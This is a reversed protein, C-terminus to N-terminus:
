PHHIIETVGREEQLAFKMGRSKDDMASRVESRYIVKRTDDTLIKFTMAHGVHEAIGVFRGRAEKSDSPFAAESVRYYVPEYWQFRLLPSIDPTRGTMCEIPTRWALVPPAMHNLLFCVYLVALLWCEAPTGTRHMIRNTTRKVDQIKREVPNQHQHHPESQWDQIFLSRLIDKVKKSTESKARDSILKNMAGRSRINDELTNIFEKDSHKMGYADVVHSNTGMFLQACRCGSDIAAVDSFITDTAVPEDRRPVNVAPNPSQFTKRLLNSMPIKVFQTTADFTRKIVDIPAWGLRPQTKEYDVQGPRTQHTCSEILIEADHFLENEQHERIYANTVIHRHRYDGMDDFRPDIDEETVQTTVADYWEESGEIVEEDLVQPNWKNPGTMIVHPLDDFEKDTYPRMSIYPLGNRFSMPIIYGEVTTIRRLGGNVKARDDVENKYYEIQGSSHITKSTPMHAYQHFIAIVPGKNTKTVGGATVIPINTVQHNDIGEVDVIDGTTEIIRLNNGAIGGNAGRDVLDTDPKHRHAKSIRYTVHIERYRKGNIEIEGQQKANSKSMLRKLDAPHPKEGKAMHALISRPEETQGTLDSTATTDDITQRDHQNM